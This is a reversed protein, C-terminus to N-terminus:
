IQSNAHFLLISEFVCMSFFIGPTQGVLVVYFGDVVKNELPQRFDDPHSAYSSISARTTDYSQRHLGSNNGSPPVKSAPVNTPV